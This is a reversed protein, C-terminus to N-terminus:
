AKEMYLQDGRRVCSWGRGHRAWVQEQSELVQVVEGPKLAPGTVEYKEGPGSRVMLNTKTIVRMRQTPVEVPQGSGYRQCLEADSGNFWNLDVNLSETGYKPGEGHSTYQWFEYKQWPAPLMPAPANTYHAVWLPYERWYTEPTGFERWYGPSTYLIPMRKMNLERKVRELFMRAYMASRTQDSPAGPRCEFDLVPPLEGPDNKLVGAFFAAQEDPLKDWTFYHYAGRLLGARKASAWNLVFDQDLWTSQSAKIFVYRIGNEVAKEFDVMQPTSNNDQWFSVDFGLTQAM